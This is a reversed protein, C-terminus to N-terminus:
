ERSYMQILEELEDASINNNPMVCKLMDPIYDWQYEDVIDAVFEELQHADDCAQAIEVIVDLKSRLLGFMQIMSRGHFYDKVDDVLNPSSLLYRQLIVDYRCLGKMEEDDDEMPIRRSLYLMATFRDDSIDKWNRNSALGNVIEEFNNASEDKNLIFEALVEPHPYDRVSDYLTTNVTLTILTISAM